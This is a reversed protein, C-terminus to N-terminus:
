LLMVVGEIERLRAYLAVVEEAEEFYPEITVSVHREHLTYRTRAPVDGRAPFQSEAVEVIDRVFEPRNKGIVKIMVTTPFAHVEKLLNLFRDSDHM